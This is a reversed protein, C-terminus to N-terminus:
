PSSGLSISKPQVESSPCFKFLYLLMKQGFKTVWLTPHKSPLRHSDGQAWAAGEGLLAQRCYTRM